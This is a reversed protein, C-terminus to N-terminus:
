YLALFVNIVNSCPCKITFIFLYICLRGSCNCFNLFLAYYRSYIFRWWSMASISTVLRALSWQTQSHSPSLRSQKKTLISVRAKGWDVCATVMKVSCWTVQDQLCFFPNQQPPAFLTQFALRGGGGHIYFDELQSGILGKKQVLPWNWPCVPIEKMWMLWILCVSRWSIFLFNIPETRYNTKTLHKISIFM